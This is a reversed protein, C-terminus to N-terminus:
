VTYLLIAAGGIGIGAGAVEEAFGRVMGCFRPIMAQTWPSPANLRALYGDSTAVEVGTVEYTVLYRPGEGDCVWRVVRRFGPM